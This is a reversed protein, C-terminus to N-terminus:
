RNRQKRGEDLTECPEGEIRRRGCDHHDDGESVVDEFLMRGQHAHDVPDVVREVCRITLGCTAEIYNM